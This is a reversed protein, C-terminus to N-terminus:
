RARRALVGVDADATTRPQESASPDLRALAARHRAVADVLARKANRQDEQFQAEVFARAKELVLTVADIVADATLERKPAGSNHREMAVAASPPMHKLRAYMTAETTGALKALQGVTVAQGGLELKLRARAKLTRSSRWPKAVDFHRQELLARTQKRTLLPLQAIIGKVRKLAEESEAEAPLNVTVKGDTCTARVVYHGELETGGAAVYRVSGTRPRAM